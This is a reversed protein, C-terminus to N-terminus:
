LVFLRHYLFYIVIGTLISKLGFISNTTMLKSSLYVQTQLWKLNHELFFAWLNIKFLLIAQCLLLGTKM